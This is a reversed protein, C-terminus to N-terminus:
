GGIERLSLPHSNMLTGLSRLGRSCCTGARRMNIELRRLALWLQGIILRGWIGRVRGQIERDPKRVVRGGRCAGGIEIHIYLMVEASQAINPLWLLAVLLSVDHGWGVLFTKADDDGSEVFRFRKCLQQRFQATGQGLSFQQHNIVAGGVMCRVDTSLEVHLAYAVGVVHSVTCRYFVARAACLALGENEHIRIPLVVGFM